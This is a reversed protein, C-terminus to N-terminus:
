WTTWFFLLVVQSRYDELNVPNGAVDNLSFAPSLIIERPSIFGAERMPDKVAHATVSLLTLMMIGILSFGAIKKKMFKGRAQNIEDTNIVTNIKGPPRFLANWYRSEM